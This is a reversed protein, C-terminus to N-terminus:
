DSNLYKNVNKNKLNYLENLNFYYIYIDNLNSFLM